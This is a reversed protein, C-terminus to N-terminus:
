RITFLSNEKDELNNQELNNNSNKNDSTMITKVQNSNKSIYKIDISKIKRLNVEKQYNIM